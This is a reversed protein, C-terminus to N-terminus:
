HILTCQLINFFNGSSSYQDCKPSTSTEMEEEKEEQTIPSKDCPELTKKLQGTLIEPLVITEFFQKVKPLMSQEWYDNDLELDINIFGCKTWVVLTANTMEQSVALQTM